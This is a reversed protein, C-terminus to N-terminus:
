EQPLSRSVAAEAAEQHIREVEAERKAELACLKAYEEPCHPKLAVCLAQRIAPNTRFGLYVDSDDPGLPIERLRDGVSTGSMIAAAQEDDLLSHCDPAEDKRPVKIRGKAAQIRSVAEEWERDLIEQWVVDGGNAPWDKERQTEAEDPVQYVKGVDEASMPWHSHVLPGETCEAKDWARLFDWLRDRERRASRLKLALLICTAALAIAIAEAIM